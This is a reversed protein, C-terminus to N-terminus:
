FTTSLGFEVKAERPYSTNDYRGKDTSVAADIDFRLWQPGLGLGATVIPKSGSEAINKYIGARIAAFNWHMELGGGLNQSHTGPLVTENKTVDMDAAISLWSLPDLGVGIRAQPKVKISTKEAGAAPTPGDFKPSNLNKAVFGVNIPGVSKLDEYRWLAGLDIGFATSEDKSDKVRSTFDSSGEKFDKFILAQKGYVTGQMVKVTAGVGLKGLAGLDLKHGYSFPIEAVVIGVLDVTSKNNDISGGNFSQAALELGSVVQDPSLGALSTGSAALQAGTKNALTAAEADSVGPVAVKIKDVVSQWQTQNFYTQTNTTVTPAVGGNMDRVLSQINSLAVTSTTSSDGTRLNARDVKVNGAGIESVGGIGLAFNRYQFGLALDVNVTLEGKTKDIDDIIALAQVAQATSAVANAADTAANGTATYSLKDTDLKGIKDVNDALAANIAVGAGGNFKASFSKEYFALGAPNWFISYADTTRAVGARGIGLSGPTQFELAQAMVPLSLGLLAVAAMMKKM